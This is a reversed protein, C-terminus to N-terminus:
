SKKVPCKEDGRLLVEGNGTIAQIQGVDRCLRRLGEPELSSSQDAGYWSRDLTFHREICMAGLQAALISPLIGVEHGSYGIGKCASLSENKRLTEFETIRKINCRGPPTPYLATTVNLVYPCNHDEFVRAVNFVSDISEALGVSVLTLRRYRAVQELFPKHLAMASPVKHFAISKGFYLELDGLSVSDFCSSSWGIGIKECYEDITHFDDWSLERGYVKDSVTNGWPSACSKALEESSYCLDVRRKQFKVFDAGCGSAASVMDLAKKLDGNHNIGIEAIVSIRCM